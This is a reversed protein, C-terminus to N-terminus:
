HRMHVLNLKLQKWRPRPSEPTIANEEGAHRALMTQLSSAVPRGVHEFRSVTDTDIM